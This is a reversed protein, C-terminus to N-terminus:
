KKNNIIPVFVQMGTNINNQLIKLYEMTLKGRVMAIKNMIMMAVCITMV